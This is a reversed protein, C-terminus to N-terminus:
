IPPGAKRAFYPLFACSRFAKPLHTEASAFDLWYSLQLAWSQPWVSSVPSRSTGRTTESGPSAVRSPGTATTQESM